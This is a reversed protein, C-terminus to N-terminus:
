MLASRTRSRLSRKQAQAGPTEINQVVLQGITQEAESLKERLRAVERREEELSALLDDVKGKEVSTSQSGEAVEPDQEGSAQRNRAEAMQRLRREERLQAEWSEQAQQFKAMAHEAFSTLQKGQSLWKEELAQLAKEGKACSTAIEQAFVATPRQNIKEALIDAYSQWKRFGHSWSEKLSDFVQDDGKRRLQAVLRFWRNESLEAEAQTKFASALHTLEELETRTTDREAMFRAAVEKCEHLSEQAHERARKESELAEEAQRLRGRVAKVQPFDEDGASPDMEKFSSLEFGEEHLAQKLSSLDSRFCNGSMAHKQQLEEQRQHLRIAETRLALVEEVIGDPGSPSNRLAECMSESERLKIRLEESEQLQMNAEELEVKAAQLENQLETSQGDAETGLEEMSKKAVEVLQKLVEIQDDKEAMMEEQAKLQQEMTVMRLQSNPDGGAECLQRIQADKEVLMAEQSRCKQELMLERQQVIVKSTYAVMPPM